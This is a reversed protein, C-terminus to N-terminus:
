KAFYVTEQLKGMVRRRGAEAILIADARGHHKKLNFDHEPFLTQAKYRSADKDKAMDQLMEKKWTQPAIEVYPVGLAALIGLMAGYSKGFHFMSTVGQGPRAGVKEIFAIVRFGFVHNKIINSTEQLSITKKKGVEILPMDYLESYGDKTHIVAIAGTLGPDIGIVKDYYM